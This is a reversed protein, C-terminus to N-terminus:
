SQKVTMNNVVSKVGRISQAINTVLSKEADSSAEGSVVVVGDATTVKTKLASTSPTRSLEYKIQTTISADDVYQGVASPQGSPPTTPATVTILNVVSKVGEVGKAYTETLDKQAATDATGSLTVVGDKVDVKTATASVNARVLLQFRVKLAIWGDSHVPPPAEVKIQNDVRTVGPINDVTDEALTKLDKDAVTGTLTVVGNKVSIKVHDELVTKYNYSAKAAEEIKADTPIGSDAFSPAASLAVFIAIVTLKIIKM